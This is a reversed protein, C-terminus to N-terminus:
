SFIKRRLVGALGLLGSGFLMIAGPEPTLWTGSFSAGSPDPGSFYVQVFFGAGPTLVDGAPAFFQITDPNILDATWSVFYPAVCFTTGSGNCDAANGIAIQAPDIAAGTGALNFTVVFSNVNISGPWALAFGGVGPIGWNGEPTSGSFDYNFGVGPPLSGSFGSGSFTIDGFAPISAIVLLCSFLLVRRTLTRPLAALSRETM